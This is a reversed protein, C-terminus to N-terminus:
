IIDPNSREVSKSICHKNTAEENLKTDDTRNVTDNFLGYIFTVWKYKNRNKAVFVRSGRFSRQTLSTCGCECNTALTERGSFDIDKSDVTSTCYTISRNLKYARFCLYAFVTKKFIAWGWETVTRM